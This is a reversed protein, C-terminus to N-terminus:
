LRKELVIRPTVAGEARRTSTHGGSARPRAPAHLDRLVTPRDHPVVVVSVATARRRSTTVRPSPRGRPHHRRHHRHHRADHRRRLRARERSSRHRRRRRRSGAHTERATEGGAARDRRRLRLRRRRVSTPEVGLRKKVKTPPPVFGRSPRRPRVHAHITSVDKLTIERRQRSRVFTRRTVHPLISEFGHAPRARQRLFLRILLRKPGLSRRSRLLSLQASALREFLLHNVRLAFLILLASPKLNNTTPTPTPAFVFSSTTVKLLRPKKKM